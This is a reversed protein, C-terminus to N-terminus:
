SEARVAEVAPWASVLPAPVPLADPPALELRTSGDVGVAVGLGCSEAACTALLMAPWDYSNSAADPSNSPCM